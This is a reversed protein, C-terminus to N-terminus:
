PRTLLTVNTPITASAGLPTAITWRTDDLQANGDTGPYTYNFLGDGQQPSCQAFADSEVIDLSPLSTFYNVPKIQFESGVNSILPVDQM